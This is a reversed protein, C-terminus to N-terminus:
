VSIVHIPPSLSYTNTSVCFRHTDTFVDTFITFLKSLNTFNWLTYMHIAVNDSDYELRARLGPCDFIWDPCSLEVGVLGLAGLQSERKLKVSNHQISEYKNDASHM